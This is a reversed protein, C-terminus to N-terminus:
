NEAADVLGYRKRIKRAEPDVKRALQIMPDTSADVAAAGGDWLQARLKADGLKSGDVLRATLSDPSESGLVSRVLGDDPGLWERMRELAFSLTLKELAPYVPTDAKLYQELQPLAANTYERFREENPPAACWRM